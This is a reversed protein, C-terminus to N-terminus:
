FRLALQGGPSSQKYGELVKTVFNQTEKIDPIRFGANIVRQFGANYAALGLPLSGNLTNLLQRLYRCGAMVNERPCFPDKVGLSDATGPMLQMLGMAGKPSVARSVFNSEVKIVALILPVPLGYRQSAEVIIPELGALTQPVSGGAPITEPNITRIILRGQRDRGAVVKNASPPPRSDQPPGPGERIGSHYSAPTVGRSGAWRAPSGNAYGPAGENTVHLVGRTDYFCRIDEPELRAIAKPAQLDQPPRPLLPQEPWTVQQL